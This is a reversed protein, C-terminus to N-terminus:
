KVFEKLCRVPLNEVRYTAFDSCPAYKQQNVAERGLVAIFGVCVVLFLILGWLFNDMKKM